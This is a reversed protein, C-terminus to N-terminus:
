SFEGARFFEQNRAQILLKLVILFLYPDSIRYFFLKGFIVIFGFWELSLLNSYIINCYQREKEKERERERMSM